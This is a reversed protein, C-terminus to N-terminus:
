DHQQGEQNNLMRIRREARPIRITFCAGENQRSATEISGGHEQVIRQVIMLGLGNGSAKSTVYPQFIQALRTPDIGEGDDLISANVWKDDATFSIGIRGGDKVAEMANKIINFFVQEMQQLDLQVPPLAQPINASIRIDRNELDVKLIHLAASLADTLQGCQLSPKTPRLAKLFQRIIGDLRSIESGAITTLETLEAKLTEDEVQRLERELLQLHITLANLPNGIEHAVSAALTTIAALRESKLNSVEAHRERTIDRLILIVDGKSPTIPMAYFSVVRREPYSIEVTRSETRSWDGFSSQGILEEWDWDKLYRLVSKGKLQNYDLGLMVEVAHNAYSLCRNADIVMVGEQLAQFVTEFFMREKAMYRIQAQLSTADLKDLKSIMKDFFGTAM